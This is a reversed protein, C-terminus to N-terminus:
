AVNALGIRKCLFNAKPAPFGAQGALFAIALDLLINSVKGSSQRKIHYKPGVLFGSEHNGGAFLM